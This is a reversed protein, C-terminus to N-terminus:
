SLNVGKYFEEMAKKECIIKLRFIFTEAENDFRSYVIAFVKM